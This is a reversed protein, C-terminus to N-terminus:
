RWEDRDQDQRDYRPPPPAYDDNEDWLRNYPRPRDRGCDIVGERCLTDRWAYKLFFRAFPRRAPEFEVRRSPSWESEGYGTGPAAQMSRPADVAAPPASQMRREDSRRNDERDESWPKPRPPPYSVAERFAAVAIVGMASADGWAGAYSDGADTFYFRNVRNRGTRWGEYTERQGPELVYMREDPRLNSRDGSIVNRGDVAIVVGIRQDSRNRIRISYNSGRVAELHAKYVTSGGGRRLPYQPFPRGRDNVVEVEVDRSDFRQAWVTPSLLMLMIILGAQWQM